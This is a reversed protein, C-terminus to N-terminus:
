VEKIAKARNNGGVQGSEAFDMIGAIDLILSIDGDGLITCGSVCGVNGVYNSLGKIVVQQQRVVEDVFLGMSKQENEVVILIGEELSTLSNHNLNFLERIRVIPILRGRINAIEQGDMTCTIYKTDVKLSEKIAIVPIIYLNGGVRTIMGDIIALTLPIRLIVMSGKGTESRVEVKGRINEINRRVVDMGVGRGSVDTIKEATSFGPQFIFQWVEEDKLESEDGSILGRERAKSLIKERNLGRGDDRVIIWVEGGVYKAELSVHGIPPKGSKEREDPTELGHDISNRIIHVLPDNIQEIVTKDVETEEGLIELEVKKSSKQALDRVLRIMKRFTGSLPIMRISTAVDQLDRTIKNLQMVSKEFRDLSKNLGQLDPNQAVMAEAIVLEGVLDMLIDLKEVDVRISQRQAPNKDAARRDSARRDVGSRRDAGTRREEQIDESGEFAPSDGANSTETEAMPVLSPSINQPKAASVQAPSQAAPSNDTGAIKGQLKRVTDELLSVLGLTGPIEPNKGQGLDRIGCRLFDIVQLMLSFIDSTQSEEHSRVIDLVTEARHSIQELDGYGLFGANGKISHIARFAQSINEASGPDKELSILATEAAELLEESETVFQTKMEPSITLQLMEEPVSESNASAPFNSEAVAGQDGPNTGAGARQRHNPVSPTGKQTVKRGKNAITFILDKLDAIIEDAEREFGKDDLQTEISDLLQRIFDTTRNLLDVHRSNLSAEGKRFLDLLTEAEHTVKSVTGLDLFGAAGKLSHFLRFITNLVEGDVACSEDSRKELEILLPEVQDLMERGEDIFAQIFESQENAANLGSM